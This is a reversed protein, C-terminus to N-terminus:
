YSKIINKDRLIKEIILYSSATEMEEKSGEGAVSELFRDV